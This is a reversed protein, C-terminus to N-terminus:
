LGDRASSERITCVECLKDSAADISVDFGDCIFIGPTVTSSGALGGRVPKNSSEPHDSTVIFDVTDGGAAPGLDKSSLLLCGLKDLGMTLDVKITGLCFRSGSEGPNGLMNAAIVNGVGGLLELDGESDLLVLELAGLGIM